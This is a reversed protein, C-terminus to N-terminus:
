RSTGGYSSFFADLASTKERKGPDSNSIGNPSKDDALRIPAVRLWGVHIPPEMGPATTVSDVSDTAFDSAAHIVAGCDPSAAEPTASVAVTASPPVGHRAFEFPIWDCLSLPHGVEGIDFLEAGRMVSLGVGNRYLYRNDPNLYRALSYDREAADLLKRGEDAQEADQLHNGLDRLHRARLHIFEGLLERPTLARLDSGTSIAKPSLGYEKVYEADSRSSFGGRGTDTAEINYTVEGDDYRCIYHSHVCALSVPWGMRWGLAVHLAAMNGCTGRRTDMVGNLFLDSPDVYSIEKARRQDEKYAIKLELDLFQCLLGLCFYRIDDKWDQPTQWFHHELARIYRRLGEAWADARRQYAAVQLDALAPIEKAVLLNMELPDTRSLEEDSLALLDRATRCRLLTAPACLPISSRALLQSM